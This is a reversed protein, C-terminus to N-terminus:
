VYEFVRLVIDCYCVSINLLFITFLNIYKGMLSSVTDTQNLSAVRQLV